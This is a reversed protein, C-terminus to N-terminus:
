QNLKNLPIDVVAEGRLPVSARRPREDLLGWPLPLREVQVTIDHAGTPVPGFEFRGDNDTTARYRGDLLVVLGAAPRETAQRAGDGNEDFFVRGSIRGSGLSGTSVGTPALPRGGAFEYRLTLLLTKDRTLVPALPNTNDVRNWIFQAQASWNRNLTWYGNISANLNNDTLGTADHLRTYTVNGDWRFASGVYHRFLLGATSRTSGIGSQRARTQSLTTSLQRTSALAWDHDWRLTDERAPAIASDTQTHTLQVRTVGWDLTKAVAANATATTATAIGPGAFKPQNRNVNANANFALTRDHRWFGSVFASGIRSGARAPDNRINNDTFDAGGALTYRLTRYDSRWYGGQQDNLILTDTWLVDPEIRFVGYRNQLAGSKQDADFWAGARGRSDALTHLQFRDRRDPSWYQLAIAGSQHDAVVDAGAVSNIQASAAWNADLRRTYGVSSLTGRTVDLQQTAVGSLRALQGTSFRWESQQDYLMSTVGRMVSSPLQIRFSSGILPSLSSRVYGLANDM